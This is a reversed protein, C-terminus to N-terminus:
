NNHHQNIIETLRNFDYKHLHFLLADAVNSNIPRIQEIIFEIQTVDLLDVATRLDVLLTDPISAFAEAEVTRLQDDLSIVPQEIKEFKIQLLRELAEILAEKKFPKAIYEDSGAALLAEREHEFASATLAVIIPPNDGSKIKTTAEKGNMIPMNADMFILDPQWIDVIDVAQQGNVVSKVTFGIATLLQEILLRNSLRDEAVLIRYERSGTALKVSSIIEQKQISANSVKLVRVFGSFTTGEDLVSHVEINGHMLDVFQKTISLGLGTGEDVVRNSELRTFTDFIQKQDTESIGTGTDSVEFSFHGMEGGLVLDPEGNQLPQYRVRLVVGGDQTYKIANSILNVLIQRIKSEDAHFYDPLTNAGEIHFLLGKGNARISLMDQISAIMKAPSFDSNEISVKGAEISSMSLINNILSLLHTASRYIIQVNRQHEYPFDNSEYRSRSFGMIANLPTRLEHSMSALFDSKMRNAEEAEQKAILLKEHQERIKQRLDVELLANEISVRLSTPNVRDKVIYNQAGAQIAAVAIREDGSGTVLISAPPQVYNQLERVIELGDGDPLQYDILLLDFTKQKLALFADSITEAEVIRYILDTQKLVRQLIARDTPSDDIILLSLTNHHTM